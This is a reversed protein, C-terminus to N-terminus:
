LCFLAESCVASHFLAVRNQNDIVIVLNIAAVVAIVDVCYVGSASPRPHRGSPGRHFAQTKVRYFFQRSQPPWAATFRRIQREYFLGVAPQRTGSYVVTMRPDLSVTERSSTWRRCRDTGTRARTRAALSATSGRGVTFKLVPARVTRDGYGVFSRFDVM